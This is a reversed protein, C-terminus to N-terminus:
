RSPTEDIILLHESDFTRNGYMRNLIEDRQAPRAQAAKAAQAAGSGVRAGSATKTTTPLAPWALARTTKDPSRHGCSTTSPTGVAM